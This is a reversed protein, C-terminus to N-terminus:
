GTARKQANGVRGGAALFRRVHERGVFKAGPAALEGCGCKCALQPRSLVPRAIKPRYPRSLVPRAIKPRLSVTRPRGMKRAQVPGADRTSFPRRDIYREACALCRGSRLVVRPKPRECNDCYAQNQERWLTQLRNIAAEARGLMQARDALWLAQVRNIAAAAATLTRVPIIRSPRGQYIQLARQPTIGLRKGIERYTLREGDRWARVLRRRTMALIPLAPRPLSM